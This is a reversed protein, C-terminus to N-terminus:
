YHLTLFIAFFRLKPLKKVIEVDFIELNCIKRFFLNWEFELFDLTTFNLFHGYVEIQAIKQRDPPWIDGFQLNKQFIPKM